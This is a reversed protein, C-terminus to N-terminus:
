GALLAPTKFSVIEQTKEVTRVDIRAISALRALLSEVLDEPTSAGSTVGVVRAGKIKELDFSRPDDVLMASRAGAVLATEVLRNSNSSQPSGVVLVTDAGPAILKVAEQRNQTAFCIDSRRPGEIGPFRRTLIEIIQAADDISLTTQTAYALSAPPTITEADEKTEVLTVAGAPAQGMAGIVEPHGRHGILVVHRGKGVHRRIEQHVKHVLPCTADIPTIDRARAEDYASQPAGHASFILPRGPAADDVTEIFVAGMAKLREVVHANHVIEHRVFVPAGFLALADEVTRIAREVGACFGRPSALRITLTARAVDAPPTAGTM